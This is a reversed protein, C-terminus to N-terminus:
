ATHKANSSQFVTFWGLTIRQSFISSAIDEWAVIDLVLTSISGDKLLHAGAGVAFAVSQCVLGCM